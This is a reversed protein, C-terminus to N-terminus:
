QYLRLIYAKDCIGNELSSPIFFAVARLGPNIFKIRLHTPKRMIQMLGDFLLSDNELEEM